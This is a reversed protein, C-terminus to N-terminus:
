WSTEAFAAQMSHLQCFNSNAVIATNGAYTNISKILEHWDENSHSLSSSQDISSRM